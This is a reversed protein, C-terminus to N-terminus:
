LGASRSARRNGQGRLRDLPSTRAEGLLVERAEATFPTWQGLHAPPRSVTVCRIGRRALKIFIESMGREYQGPGYPSRTLCAATDFPGRQDWEKRLFSWVGDPLVRLEQGAVESNFMWFGAKTGVQLGDAGVHAAGWRIERVLWDQYAPNVLDVVVDKVRLTPREEPRRAHQIQVYTVPRRGPDRNWVREYWAEDVYWGRLIEFGVSLWPKMDAHWADRDISCIWEDRFGEQYNPWGSKPDKERDELRAFLEFRVRALIRVEPNRQKAELCRARFADHFPSLGRFGPALTPGVWWGGTSAIEESSARRADRVEVQRPAFEFRRGPSAVGRAVRSLVAAPLALVLAEVFGRRDLRLACPEPGSGLM